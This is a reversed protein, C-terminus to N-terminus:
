GAAVIGINLIIILAASVISVASIVVGLISFIKKKNKQLLGGIGLGCAVLSPGSFIVLLFIVIFEGVSGAKIWELELAAMVGLFAAVLFIFAGSSISTVFSAIGFGSHRGEKLMKEGELGQEHAAANFM